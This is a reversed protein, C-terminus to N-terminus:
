ILLQVLAWSESDIYSSRGRQQWAWSGEEEFQKINECTGIINVVLEKNELM